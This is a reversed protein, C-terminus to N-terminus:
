FSELNTIVRAWNGCTKMSGSTDVIFVVYDSDIRIGGAETATTIRSREKNKALSDELLAM